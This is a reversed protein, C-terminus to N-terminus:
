AADKVLKAKLKCAYQKASELGKNALEVLQRDLSPMFSELPTRKKRLVIWVTIVFLVAASGINQWSYFEWAYDTYILKDSFPWLYYFGWGKGSGFFDMLLHIQFLALFVCFAKARSEAFAALVGSVIIGFLFNHALKHHWDWYLENGGIIGLGDIDPLVAAFIGLARERVSFKAFVNALCWGAM